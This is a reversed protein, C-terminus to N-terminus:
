GHYTVGSTLSLTTKWGSQGTDSIIEFTSLSCLRVSQFIRNALSTFVVDQVEEIVGSLYCYVIGVVACFLGSCFQIGLIM